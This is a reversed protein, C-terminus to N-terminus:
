ERTGEYILRVEDMVESPISTAKVIYGDAGLGKAQEISEEDGQNTLMIVAAHEALREERMAQLIELGSIEPMVIDLLLIDPYFNQRLKALAEDAKACLTVQYGEDKFKKAYMDLLFTDDDVLMIHLPHTQTQEMM